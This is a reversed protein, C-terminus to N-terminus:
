GIDDNVKLALVFSHAFGHFFHSNKGRLDYIGERVDESDSFFKNFNKVTKPARKNM